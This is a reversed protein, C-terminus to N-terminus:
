KKEDDNQPALLTGVGFKGLLETLSGHGAVRGQADVLIYYPFVAAPYGAVKAPNLDGNKDPNLYTPYDLQYLKRDREVEEPPTGPPHMGIITAGRAALAKLRPMDNKCPGCWTAWFHLLYAKGALDRPKGGIWGEAPLAPAPKGVLAEVPRVLRKFVEKGKLRREYAAAALNRIQEDTQNSRFELDISAMFRQDQVHEGERPLLKEIRDALDLNTQIAEVELESRRLLQKQRVTESAHPFARIERFPLWIGPSIERYDEFRVLENPTINAPSPALDFEKWALHIQILEDGTAEYLHWNSYEMQSEFPKGAIRRVADSAYFKKSRIPDTAVHYTLVGRVRGSDRGIWLREARLPSDAVDCTEDGFKEVGLSKWTTREPPVLSMTQLNDADTRGWWFRHPTLRLYSFDFLNHRRWFKSPGASRVFNVSSHDNAERREWADTATWFHYAYNMVTEGPGFEHLFRKEDWSFGIQYRGIWDKQLVPATLAEKLRDISVNVARMSDVIGHRTRARYSFRPLKDIAAAQAHVRLALRTALPDGADPKPSEVPVKLRETIRPRDAQVPKEIRANGTNRAVASGPLDQQEGSRAWVGAGCLAIGLAALTALAIKLKFMVIEKLVGEALRAATSVGAPGVGGTTLRAATLSVSRALPESVSARISEPNLMAALPGVALSFGRRTLRKLLLTRAQSLRGSVTGIPWRLRRAAEAHTLGELHCLVLPAQFKGPLRGLEEDLAARLEAQVPDFGPVAPERGGEGIRARRRESQVRARAAVRRAVGHLWRGLSDGVRVSGARRVLVLFTAQFADEVDDPDSLARRCVGLVMPGHRAVLAAFAAEAAHTAESAEARSAAYRELLQADCLGAATGSDFLTRIERVFDVSRADAM